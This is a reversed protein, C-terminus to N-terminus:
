SPYISASETANVLEERATNVLKRLEDISWTEYAPSESDSKAKRKEEETKQSYVVTGEVDEQNWDDDDPYSSGNQLYQSGRQSSVKGAMGGARHDYTQYWNTNGRRLAQAETDISQSWGQDKEQEWKGWFWFPYEQDVNHILIRSEETLFPIIGDGKWFALFALARSDSWPGEPISIKDSGLVAQLLVDDWKAWTGNHHLVKDAEGELWTDANPSLPFPHTLAEDIGGISAARFHIAFPFQIEQKEIVEKVTEPSSKLGKVWAIKGNRFWSIGAGDDNTFAGRGLEEDSPLEDTCAYIVCM